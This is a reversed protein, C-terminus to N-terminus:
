IFSMKLKDPHRLVHTHRLHLIRDAGLDLRASHAESLKEFVVVPQSRAANSLYGLWTVFFWWTRTACNQSILRKLGGCQRFEFIKIIFNYLFDEFWLVRNKPGIEACKPRSNESWAAQLAFPRGKEFISSRIRFFSWSDRKRRCSRHERRDM